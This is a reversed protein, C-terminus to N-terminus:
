AAFVQYVIRAYDNKHAIPGYPVGLDDIKDNFSGAVYIIQDDKNMKLIQAILRIVLEAAETILAGTPQGTAAMAILNARLEKFQDTNRLENLVEGGERLEHDSEM